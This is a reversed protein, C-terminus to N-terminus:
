RVERWYEEGYRVVVGADDVTLEAEFGDSAYRYRDEGLREYTQESALVRLDPFGVWAARIEAREGAGLGLRRIPLTNTAPTVRLDVDTCGDLSRDHRGGVLWRTGDRSLELRRTGTAADVEIRVGRTNWDGDADVRYEVRAPSGNVPVLVLGVLSRATDTETLRCLETSRDFPNQWLVSRVSTM